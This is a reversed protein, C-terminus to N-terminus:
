KKEIKLQQFNLNKYDVADIFEFKFNFKKAIKNINNPRNVESILSIVYIKNFINNLNSM